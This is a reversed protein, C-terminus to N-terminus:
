VAAAASSSSARHDPRAELEGVRRERGPETLAALQALRDALGAAGVEVAPQREEDDVARGVGRRADGPPDRDVARGIEDPRGVVIAGRGLRECRDGGRQALPEAADEHDVTSSAAQAGTGLPECFSCGNSMLTPADPPGAARRASPQRASASALIRRSRRLGVTTM